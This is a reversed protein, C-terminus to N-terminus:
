ERLLIIYNYNHDLLWDKLLMCIAESAMQSSWLIWKETLAEFYLDPKIELEVKYDIRLRFEKVLYYYVASGVGLDKIFTVNILEFPANWYFCQTNVALSETDKLYIDLPYHLRYVAPIM